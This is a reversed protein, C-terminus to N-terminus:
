FSSGPERLFAIEEPTSERGLIGNRHPFRRFREVIEAHRDAYDVAMEIAPRIAQPCHQALARFRMCSERQDEITESHMLPMLLFYAHMPSLTAADGRAIGHRSATLARGDLKYMAPTDRGANRTFQDCVIVYALNSQPHELWGDLTGHEAAEITPGFRERITADFVPEKKWWRTALDSDVRGEADLDGFWFHVIADPTATM